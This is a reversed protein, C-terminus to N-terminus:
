PRAERQIVDRLLGVIDRRDDASVGLYPRAPINGWPIPSGRRTRGFAGKRAGLQQVAAYIVNTGIDASRRDARFTISNRLRGTDLLPTSSGKRRRAITVPSLPAWRRGDPATSDRFRLRASEALFHGIARMAPTMDTVVRELKALWAKVTRDDVEIRIM